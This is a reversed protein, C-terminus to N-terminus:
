CGSINKSVLLNVATDKAGIGVKGTAGDVIVQATLGTTFYLDRSFSNHGIWMASGDMTLGGQYGSGSIKLHGSWSADPTQDTGDGIRMLSNIPNLLEYRTSSADYCLLLKHGAGRIDGAALAQGGNKTITLAGLGDPNFTPTTSTNASSAEVLFMTGDRLDNSIFAPAFTGTIADATGGVTAASAVGQFRATEVNTGDCYLYVARGQPITKGTGSATKVTVTEAGSTKNIFVWNKEATRVQITASGTLAGTIVIIAYRNQSSTLTTTGGTTSISTYRAIAQELISFNADAVDGWTNDNAGTAQDELELYTTTTM